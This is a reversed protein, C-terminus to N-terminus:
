FDLIVFYDIIKHLYQQIALSYVNLNKQYHKNLKTLM